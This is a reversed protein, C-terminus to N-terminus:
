DIGTEVEHCIRTDHNRGSTAKPHYGLGTPNAAHFRRV